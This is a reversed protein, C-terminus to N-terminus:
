PRVPGRNGYEADCGMTYLTEMALARLPDAQKLLEVREMGTAERLARWVEEQGGAAKLRRQAPVERENRSILMGQIRKVFTETGLVCGAAVKEKLKFPKGLRLDDLTRRRFALRGEETDGGYSSLILAHDM